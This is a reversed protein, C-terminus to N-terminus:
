DELQAVVVECCWPRREEAKWGDALFKDIAADAAEEATKEAEARAKEAEEARRLAEERGKLAEDKEKLADDRDAAVQHYAADAEDVRKKMAAVEEWLRDLCGMAEEASAAKQEIEKLRTIERQQRQHSEMLMFAGQVVLDM